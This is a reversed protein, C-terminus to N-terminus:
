VYIYDYRVLIDVINMCTTDIRTPQGNLLTYLFTIVM